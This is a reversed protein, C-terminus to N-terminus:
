FGFAYAFFLRRGTGRPGGFDLRVLSCLEARLAGPVDVFLTATQSRRPNGRESGTGPVEVGGADLWTEGDTSLYVQCRRGYNSDWPSYTFGVQEVFGGSGPLQIVVEAPDPLFTSQALDGKWAADVAALHEQFEAASGFCFPAASAAAPTCGCMGPVGAAEDIAFGDPWEPFAHDYRLLPKSAGGARGLEGGLRAGQSALALNRRRSEVLLLHGAAVPSRPSDLLETGCLLRQKAVDPGGARAIASKLDLVTAGSALAFEGIHRGGLTSVTIAMQPAAAADDAAAEAAPADAPM